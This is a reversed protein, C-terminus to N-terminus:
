FDERLEKHRQKHCPQCLWMIDLPKDYDEHHALSKVNGCRVCPRKQLTGKLIARKVANHARVRRKDEDRWARNVETNYRVREPRKGRERDYARVKELNESRHKNSDNKTCEKCKNLYGDGMQPHKYFETFPKVAKCKFCTKM